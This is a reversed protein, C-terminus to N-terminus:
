INVVEGYIQRQENDTNQKNFINQTSVTNLTHQVHDTNQEYVASQTYGPNEEEALMQQLIGMTNVGKKNSYAVYHTAYQPNYPNAVVVGEAPVNNLCPSARNTSFLENDYKGELVKQINDPMILWDFDAQWGREGGGCLFDSLVAREFLSKIGDIGLEKFMSAVKKKRSGKISMINRLRADCLSNYIEIIEQFPVNNPAEVLVYNETKTVVPIHNTPTVVPTHNVTYNVTPTVAAAEAAKSQDTNVAIACAPNPATATTIATATESGKNNNIHNDNMKNKTLKNHNPYLNRVKQPETVISEATYNRQIQPNIEQVEQFTSDTIGFSVTEKPDNYPEPDLYPTPNEDNGITPSLLYIKNPKNLGQKKEEVLHFNKLEQMVKLVTVKSLGTQREMEDRKFYIYVEGNEDFWGNKVSVRHRDSLLTYLIRANNSIANGAFEGATLFRPMQYFTNTVISQRTYRMRRNPNDTKREMTKLGKMTGKM